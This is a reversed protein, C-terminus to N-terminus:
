LSWQEFSHIPNQGYYNIIKYTGCLHEPVNHLTVKGKDFETYFGFERQATRAHTSLLKILGEISLECEAEGYYDPRLWGDEESDKMMEFITHLDIDNPAPDVGNYTKQIQYM